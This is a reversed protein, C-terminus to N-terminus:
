QICPTMYTISEGRSLLKDGEMFFGLSEVWDLFADRTFAISITFGYGINLRYTDDRQNASVLDVVIEDPVDFWQMAFVGPLKLELENAMGDFIYTNIRQQAVHVKCIRM